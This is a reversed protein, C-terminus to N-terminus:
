GPFSTCHHDRAGDFSRRINRREAVGVLDASGFSMEQRGIRVDLTFTDQNVLFIDGFAQQVDLDNEDTALPGGERGSQFHSGLQVFARFQDRWHLDGHLLLRHLFVDERPRAGVGFLPRDMYQYRERFEGGLSLYVNGPTDLPVFKLRDIGRLQDVQDAVAGYEENYRLPQITPLDIQAIAPQVCALVIVVASSGAGYWRACQQKLM